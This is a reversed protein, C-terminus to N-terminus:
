TNFLFFLIWVNTHLQEFRTQTKYEIIYKEGQSDKIKFNEQADLGYIVVAHGIECEPWFLQAVIYKGNNLASNFCLTEPTCGMLERFKSIKLSRPHFVKEYGLTIEPDNLQFAHLFEQTSDKNWSYLGFLLAFILGM